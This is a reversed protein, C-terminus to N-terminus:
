YVVFVEIADNTDEVFYVRLNYDISSPLAPTFAALRLIKFAKGSAIPEGILTFRMLNETMVYCQNLDIQVYVDTNITEHGLKSLMQLFMLICQHICTEMYTSHM